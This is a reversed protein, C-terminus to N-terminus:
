QAMKYIPFNLSPKVYRYPHGTFAESGSFQAEQEPIQSWIRFKKKETM